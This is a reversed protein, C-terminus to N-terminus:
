LIGIDTIDDLVSYSAGVELWTLPRFTAEASFSVLADRRTTAGNRYARYLLASPAVLTGYGRLYADFNAHVALSRWLTHDYHVYLHDDVLYSAYLSDFFDRAYGASLRMKDLIRLRVELGGIFNSYRLGSIDGVLLPM